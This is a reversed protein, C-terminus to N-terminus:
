QEIILLNKPLERLFRSMDQSMIRGYRNPSSAYTTLFLESKARTVAVYFLRREEEDSGTEEIAWKLPFWFEVLGIIFVVDWELGKASHMTSLNIPHFDPPNQEEQFQDLSLTNIFDALSSFNSAIDALIIFDEEVKEWTNHFKTKLYPNLIEITRLIIESVDDSANSLTSLESLVGRFKILSSIDDKRYPLNPKPVDDLIDWFSLQKDESIQEIKEITDENSFGILSQISSLAISDEPNLVLRIMDLIFKIHSLSFFDEGGTLIFPIGAEKLEIELSAVLQTARFLVAIKEPKMGLNLFYKIQSVVYEAEQARTRASYLRPKNGSGRDSCITKQFQKPNNAIIENSIEVIEKTSRYNKGLTIIEGNFRSNFNLINEVTAARFGYISQADDGVVTINNTDLLRLFKEQIVNTDQYEDVLIAKFRRQYMNRVDQYQELIEVAYCQLDDFDVRNSRRCRRQYTQIIRSITEIHVKKTSPYRQSGVLERWGVNANRSYSYLQFINKLTYEDINYPIAARKITLLSDSSDLVSWGPQLNALGPNEMLIRWCVSHITGIWALKLKNHISPSVQSTIRNKIENAAKKTFTVVMLSEPPIENLLSIARNTLTRTKGSGAGALILLNGKRYNVAKEQNSDMEIKNYFINNLKQNLIENTKEWLFNWEKLKSETKKYQILFNFVGEVVGNTKPYLPQVVRREEKIKKIKEWDDKYALAMLELTLFRDQLTDKEPFKIDAPIKNITNLTEQFNGGILYNLALDELTTLVLATDFNKDGQYITERFCGEAIFWEGISFWNWARFLSVLSNIWDNSQNDPEKDFLENVEGKFLNTYRFPNYSEEIGVFSTSYKWRFYDESFKKALLSGKIWFFHSNYESETTFSKSIITEIDGGMLEPYFQRLFYADM